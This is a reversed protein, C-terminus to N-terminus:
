NVLNIRDHFEVHKACRRQGVDPTRLTCEASTLKKYTKIVRDLCLGTGDESQKSVTM